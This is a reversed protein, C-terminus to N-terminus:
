KFGLYRKLTDDNEGLQTSTGQGIVSGTSLMFIYDSIEIAKKVNQEVLIIACKEERSIKLIIEFIAEVLKPALGLSPEDLMLVEPNGMIAQGIALMQQQGGSLSAAQRSLIDKLIPFYHFAKDLAESLNLQRKNNSLSAIKLNDMVSLAPFVLHGQPVYQIGADVTVEPWGLPLIKEKFYIQGYSPMELGSIARLLSSKGSGNTGLVSVIEREYVSISVANLAKASGYELSLDKVVLLGTSSKRHVGQAIRKADLEPGAESLNAGLYVEITEPHKSIEDPTGTALVEGHNMVMIKDSIKMLAAVDHEVILAAVGFETKIIKLLNGLNEIESPPLGQAPEDLFLVKPNSFLARALDLRRRWAFSLIGIPSNEVDQLNPFDPRGHLIPYGRDKEPPAMFERVQRFFDLIQRAREKLEHENKQSKSTQLGDALIRFNYPNFQGLKVYDLISTRSLQNFFSLDQFTRAIGLPQLEDGSCKLLNKGEFIISGSSPTYIRSICNILTTKGAGNPGMLGLFEKPQLELNVDKLAAIGGFEISLNKISLLAM